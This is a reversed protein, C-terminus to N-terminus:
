RLRTVNQAEIHAARFENLYGRLGHIGVAQNVFRDLNMGPLATVYAIIQGSDSTLAHTPQGPQAAHVPVLWGTADFNKAAMTDSGSGTAPAAFSATVVPATTPSTPNSVFSGGNPSGAGFAGASFSGAGVSNTGLAPVSSVPPGGMAAGNNLSSLSYGSKMAHREFEGIRELLLRAQGRETPSSGNSIYYQVKDKLEGFNWQQMPRTVM